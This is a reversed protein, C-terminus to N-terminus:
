SFLPTVQDRLWPPGDHEGAHLSTTGEAVALPSGVVYVAGEVTGALEDTAIVADDNVSLLLPLAPLIHTVVAQTATTGKTTAKPRTFAPVALRAGIVSVFVPDLGNVILLM